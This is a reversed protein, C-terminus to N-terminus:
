ILRRSATSPRRAPPRPSSAASSAATAAGGASPREATAAQSTRVYRRVVDLLRELDGEDNYYHTSVRVGGIGATYRVSVYVGADLLRALLAQDRDPRGATFTTIGSGPRSVVRVGARDLEDHLLRGLGLVHAEVADIGIDNVLALSAGLGAAGPYNATGGIEFRKATQPFEYPRLPTIEPTAFYRPWGGDPEALSLYGWSAQRLTQQADHSVYMLGCGFPANLWKHGGAVLVDVPTERIDRRLAGLEQIADVVLLAGCSRCLRLLAALDLRCGNSWQVSSVVVARTRDDVVDAFAEVPLAGEVNRALRVEAIRGAEALKVWPIAVQLFELDAVVVNDGAEFPIAQAAVNLGHTTSEVLAIEDTSAGLLASGEVVARDRLRDMAVHHASADREDCRGAAAAFEQVAAVAQVPALSVCAADLFARGALAPFCSRAETVRM